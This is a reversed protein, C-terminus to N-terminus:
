DFKGFKREERELELRHEEELDELMRSGNYAGRLSELPEPVVIRVARGERVVVVEDGPRIGLDDRIAKPIVVQGKPGIRQTM